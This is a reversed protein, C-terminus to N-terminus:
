QRESCWILRLAASHVFQYTYSVWRKESATIGHRLYNRWSPDQQPQGTFEELKEEPVTPLLRGIAEEKSWGFMQEAAKNWSLVIGDKDVAYIAAPSAELISNIWANRELLAATREAVLRELEARRRFITSTVIALATTLLIGILIALWGAWISQLHMFEPGAHATLTFVKGYAFVPLTSSFGSAPLSEADWSTALLEPAADKRLLSLEMLVANGPAGSRLLTGMRLVALAFGRLRKPDEGGFVPRYILMGKQSGTEQVLTIPDTGTILGTHAAEELATRRLPESGLDYGLAGENGALPVVYFVPYYVNRGTALVRKRQADKQWIRFGTLGMARAAAELRTKDEAPM